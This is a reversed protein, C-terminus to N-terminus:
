DSSKILEQPLQTVQSSVAAFTQSQYQLQLLPIVTQVELFTPALVPQPCDLSDAYLRQMTSQGTSNSEPQVLLWIAQLGGGQFVQQQQGDHQTGEHLQKM